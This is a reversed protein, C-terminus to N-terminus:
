ISRRKLSAANCALGFLFPLAVVLPFLYRLTSAIPAAVMVTGWLLLCPMSVLLWRPSGKMTALVLSLVLVLMFCFGGSPAWVVSRYLSDFAESFGQPYVPRNYLDWEEMQLIDAESRVNDSISFLYSQNKNPALFSWYGYTASLYARFYTDPHSFGLTLYVSVFREKNDQLFDTDFADDYKITDVFMPAYRRSYEELPLLGDLFGAQEESLGEPDSSAVAAMQLIPIGVSERFLQQIGICSLVLSPVLALAIALSSTLLLKWSAAKWFCFVLLMSLILVIYLGNNRSLATAATLIFLLVYSSGRGWFRGPDDVSEYLFPIWLLLFYSFITDKLATMAYCSIVPVLCFFLVIMVVVVKPAGRHRLWLSCFAIIGSCVIMQAVIYCAFGANANDFFLITGRVFVSLILNYLLPHNNAHGVPSRIVALQDNMSTGPYYNLFVPIWCALMGLMILAFLLRHAKLYAPLTADALSRSAHGVEAPTAHSAKGVEATLAGEAESDQGGGTREGRKALFLATRCIAELLIWVVAFAVVFWFLDAQAFPLPFNEPYISSIDDTFSLKSELVVSGSIFGACLTQFLLLTKPREIPNRMKEQMIETYRYAHGGLRDFVAPLRSRPAQNPLM